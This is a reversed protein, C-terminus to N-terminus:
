QLLQSNIPIPAFNLIGKYVKGSHKSKISYKISVNETTDILILSPFFIYTNPNVKKFTYRLLNYDNSDNFAEHEFQHDIQKLFHKKKNELRKTTNGIRYILDLNNYTEYNPINLEEYRNIQSNPNLGLNKKIFESEILITLADYDDPVLINQYDIVNIEKPFMLDVTVDEDYSEGINTIVLPLSYFSNLYDIFKTLENLTLLEWYLTRLKKHKELESETGKYDKDPFHFSMVSFPERMLDGVNFFGKPVDLNFYRKLGDRIINRMDDSIEAESPNYFSSLKSIGLINDEVEVQKNRSSLKISAADLYAKHTLSIQKAIIPLERILIKKGIYTSNFVSNLQDYFEIKFESAKGKTIEKPYNNKVWNGFYDDFEKRSVREGIISFQFFQYILGGMILNGASPKINIELSELYRLVELNITNEMLDQKFPFLEIKIKNINENILNSGQIMEHSNIQNIFTKTEVSSGGILTLEYFFFNNTNLILAELWKIIESKQFNNITSKVQQCKKEGNKGEWVIDVKDSEGNPEIQLFEWTNDTLSQIVSIITQYTYGRIGEKGGMM